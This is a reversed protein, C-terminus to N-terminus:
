GNVYIDEGVDKGNIVSSTAFITVENASTVLNPLVPIDVHKGLNWILNTYNKEVLTVM